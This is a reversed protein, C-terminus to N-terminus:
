MTPQISYIGKTSCYAEEIGWHKKEHGAGWTDSFIIEKKATNYGIIMRMHGGRSQDIRVPEKYIGLTVTWLLPIGANISRMIEADFKKIGSRSRLRTTKLIEPDFYDFNHWHNVSSGTPVEKADARKAIRNYDESLDSMDKYDMANHTKIRMKFRGVISKLADIMADTNTGGSASSGAMQAIEHQDVQLGYYGFMRATAAVVCYGKQGQDVMPIGKIYVDGDERVVNAPLDSKKVRKESGSLREEMFSKKVVPAVRLRIFEGHFPRKRASYELLYAVDPTSWVVGSTKVASKNNRSRREPKVNSIDSIIKNWTQLKENFKEANSILGDDGRNYISLQVQKPVGDAFTVITEGIEGEEVSLKEVGGSIRASDKTDSTWRFGLHDYRDMFADQSLKWFEPSSLITGLTAREDQDGQAQVAFPLAFPLFALTFFLSLTNLKM